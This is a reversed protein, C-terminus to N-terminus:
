TNIETSIEEGRLYANNLRNRARQLRDRDLPSLEAHKLIVDMDHIVSPVTGLFMGMVKARQVNDYENAM